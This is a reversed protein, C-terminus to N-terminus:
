FYTAFGLTYGARRRLIAGLLYYRFLVTSGDPSHAFFAHIATMVAFNNPQWALTGQFISFILYLDMMQVYLAKM